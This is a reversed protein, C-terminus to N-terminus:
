PNVGVNPPGPVGTEKKPLPKPAPTVLTENLPALAWITLTLALETTAVTGAFAVVPGTVITVGLPVRVLAGKVTSAPTSTWGDLVITRILWVNWNLTN